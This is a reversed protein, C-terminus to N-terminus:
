FSFWNICVMARYFPLNNKIIVIFFTRKSFMKIKLYESQVINPSSDVEKKLVIVYNNEVHNTVDM